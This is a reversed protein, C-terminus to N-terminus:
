KCLVEVVEDKKLIYKKEVNINENLMEVLECDNNKESLHAFCLVKTNEGILKKLYQNTQKNSLHGVDSNIRKKVSYPYKENTLLAQEDYNSEILYSNLNKLDKQLNLPIYGTDTIHGHIKDAYKFLFGVSESADHSTKFPIVSVGLIKLAMGVTIFNMNKIEYKLSQSTGKTTYVPINHKKQFVELGKLHDSHEHTILIADIHEIDMEINDMQNKLTKYNVGIDVMIKTIGFDYVYCNGSSSSAISYLTM